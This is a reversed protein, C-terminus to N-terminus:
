AKEGKVVKKHKRCYYDFQVFAEFECSGQKCIPLIMIEERFKNRRIEKVVNKQKEKLLM